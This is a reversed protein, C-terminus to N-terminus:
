LRAPWHQRKRTTLSDFGWTDTKANEVYNIEKTANNIKVVWIAQSSEIRTTETMGETILPFM